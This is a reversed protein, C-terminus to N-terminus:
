LLQQVFKSGESYLAFNVKQSNGSVDPVNCSYIGTLSSGLVFDTDPVNECVRRYGYWDNVYRCQQTLQYYYIDM